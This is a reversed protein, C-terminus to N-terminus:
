GAGDADLLMRLKRLGPADPHMKRCRELTRRARVADHARLRLEVLLHCADRLHPKKQLAREVLRIAAERDDPATKLAEALDRWATPRTPRLPDPVAVDRRVLLGSVADIYLVRWRDTEVLALLYQFNGGRTPWLFFEAGSSEVVEAWAPQGTAVRQYREYTEAAFLTDARGDIFVKMAGDTRYHLYGGWSYEAFVKGSLRNREIFNVTEVPFTDELVLYHFAAEPRLPYPALWVVGLVVAAAAPAASPVRHRVRGWLDALLPAVLLSLAIGFLPIFRRSTLSMALTLLALGLAEWPVRKWGGHRLPGLAHLATLACLAIAYPYLPSRIGGGELPSRWEQLERFPSSAEFAYKLPYLFAGVHHPNALAAAACALWLGAARRLEGTGGRWAAPALLVGLALLGFFFGGHLNAWVLFVAPLWLPPRRRWCLAVLVTTGLLSYLHPRVDLFPAALAVALIAAGFGAVADGTVRWLKQQLLGYTAVIVGWKWIALSELGWLATWAHYVVDSLWEHHLWPEGFHTFSWPDTLFVTGTEVIHRGSALHWYLDSGRMCTHGFSWACLLGAVTWLPM